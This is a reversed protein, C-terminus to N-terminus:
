SLLGAVDRSLKVAFEPDTQDYYGRIQAGQDILVFRTSHMNPDDGQKMYFSSAVRKIDEFPGTLFFWRDKEAGYSVAYQSLVEPTDTDPDVSFSVFRVGPPLKKQLRAMESSMRPCQGGCSTFIFDALWVTNLLDGRTMIRGSSETLTFDAATGYVPLQSADPSGAGEKRDRSIQHGLLFSSAVGALPLILFAAIVWQVLRRGSSAPSDLTPM